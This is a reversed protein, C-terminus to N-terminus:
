AKKCEIIKHERNDRVDAAEVNFLTALKNEKGTRFSDRVVHGFSNQLSVLMNM